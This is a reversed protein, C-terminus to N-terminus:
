TRLASFMTVSCSNQPLYALYLLSVVALFLLSAQIASLICHSQLVDAEAEKPQNTHRPQGGDQSQDMAEAAAAAEMEAKHKEQEEQMRRNMQASYDAFTLNIDFPTRVFINPPAYNNQIPWYFSDDDRGFPVKGYLDTFEQLTYYFRTSALVLEIRQIEPLLKRFVDPALQTSALALSTKAQYSVRPPHDEESGEFGGENDSPPDMGMTSEAHSLDTATLGRPELSDHVLSCITHMKEKIILHQKGMLYEDTPTSPPFKENLFAAPIRRFVLERTYLDQIHDEILVVRNSQWYDGICKLLEGCFIGMMDEGSELMLMTYDNMYVLLGCMPDPTYSLYRCKKQLEQLKETFLTYRDKPGAELEAEAELEEAEDEGQADDDFDFNFTRTLTEKEPDQPDDPELKPQTPLEEATSAQSYHEDDGGGMVEATKLTATDGDLQPRSAAMTAATAAHAALTAQTTQNSEREREVNKALIFIRQYFVSTKMDLLEDDVYEVLSKRVQFILPRKLTFCPQRTPITQRSKQGGSMTSATRGVRSGSSAM